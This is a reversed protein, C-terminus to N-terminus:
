SGFVIMVLRVHCNTVFIYGIYSKILMTLKKKKKLKKSSLLSRIFFKVFATLRHVVIIKLVLKRIPFDLWWINSDNKYVCKKALCNTTINAERYVFQLYNSELFTEM